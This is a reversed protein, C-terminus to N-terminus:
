DGTRRHADERLESRLTRMYKEIVRFTTWLRSLEQSSTGAKRAEQVVDVEGIRFGGLRARVYLEPNALNVRHKIELADVFSRSMGRIGCNVDHLSFGLYAKALLWLARSIALRPWPESRQRRRGLVLDFGADLKADLPWIDDPRHQGDSDIIFVRDGKAERIGTSCSGAYLRNESHQVLRIRSNAAALKSVIRATDDTSANDIVIVEFPDDRVACAAVTRKVMHAIYGEENYAPLVITRLLGM